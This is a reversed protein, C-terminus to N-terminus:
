LSHNKKEGDDIEAYSKISSSNEGWGFYRINNEDLTKCTDLYGQKGYDMSHTNGLTAYDIGLNKVAKITDVPAKISPGIKEIAKDSDTFCGEFNCIRYDASAFLSCLKEGFLSKADGVRFLDYNCPMPLFDGAIIIKTNKM